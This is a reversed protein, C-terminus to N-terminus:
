VDASDDLQARQDTGPEVFLTKVHPKGGETLARLHRLTPVSGPGEDPGGGPELDLALQPEEGLVRKVQTEIVLNIGARVGLRHFLVDLIHQYFMM